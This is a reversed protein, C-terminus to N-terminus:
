AVGVCVSAESTRARPTGPPSLSKSVDLVKMCVQGESLFAGPLIKPSGSVGLLGLPFWFTGFTGTGGDIVCYM